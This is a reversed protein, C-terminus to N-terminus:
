SLLKSRTIGINHLKPLSLYVTKFYGVYKTKRIKYLNELENIKLVDISVEISNILFKTLAFIFKFFKICEEILLFLFNTFM